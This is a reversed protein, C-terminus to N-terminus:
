YRSIAVFLNIFILDNEIEQMWFVDKYIEKYKNTNERTKCFDVKM